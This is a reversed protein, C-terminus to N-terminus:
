TNRYYVGLYDPYDVGLNRADRGDWPRAASGLILPKRYIYPIMPKSSRPRGLAPRAARGASSGPRQQGATSRGTRARRAGNAGARDRAFYPCGFRVEFRSAAHRPDARRGRLTRDTAGAAATRHKRNSVTCGITIRHSFPVPFASHGFRPGFRVVCHPFRHSQEYQVTYM